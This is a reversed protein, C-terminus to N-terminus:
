IVADDGINIGNSKSFGKNVEIVYMAPRSSTYTSCPEAICPEASQIDIVKLDKGIFIMDLPIPTNKMWFHRTKEDDFVFLMGENKGLADQFMLGRARENDDDAIKALINVDGTKTKVTIGESRLNFILIVLLLAAAIPIIYRKKTM